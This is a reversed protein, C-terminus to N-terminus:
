KQQLTKRPPGTKNATITPKLRALRERKKGAIGPGSFRKAPRGKIRTVTMAAWITRVSHATQHPAPLAEGPLSSELARIRGAQRAFAARPIAPYRSFSTWQVTITVEFSGVNDRFDDDNVGLYLRGITPALVLM